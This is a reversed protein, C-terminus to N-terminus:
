GSAFFFFFFFPNSKELDFYIESVDDWWIKVPVPDEIIKL